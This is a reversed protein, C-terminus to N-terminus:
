IKRYIKDILKFIVCGLLVGLSNHLIDDFEFYGKKLLLQLIEIVFSVMTGTLIILLIRTRPFLTRLCFGYPIFLFVNYINEYLIGLVGIKAYNMYSWFLELKYLYETNTKRSFVTSIFIILIYQVFIFITILKTKNVNKKKRSYILLLSLIIGVAIIVCWWKLSITTFYKWIPSSYGM